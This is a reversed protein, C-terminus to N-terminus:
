DRLPEYTLIVVGDSGVEQSSALKLSVAKGPDSFLRKGEGVVIPFVMLRYEDVLDDEVLTQILTVSGNVLIDDSESDKLGAIQAAVDDSLVTSNQWEPDTLTTSAAISTRPGM